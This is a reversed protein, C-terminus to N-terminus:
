TASVLHQTRNRLKVYVYDIRVVVGHPLYNQFCDWKVSPFSFFLTTLSSAWPVFNILLLPLIWIQANQSRLCGGLWWLGTGRRACNPYPHPPWYTRTWTKWLIFQWENTHHFWSFPNHGAKLFHFQFYTFINQFPISYIIDSYMESIIYQTVIYTTHIVTPWSRFLKFGSELNM